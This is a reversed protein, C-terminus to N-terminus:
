FVLVLLPFHSRINLPWKRNKDPFCLFSALTIVLLLPIITFIRLLIIGIDKSIDM